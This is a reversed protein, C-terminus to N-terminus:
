RSRDWILNGRNMPEHLCLIPAINVSRLPLYHKWFRIDTMRNPPSTHHWRRDPRMNRGTGSPWKRDPGMSRGPSPTEEQPDEGLPYEETVPRRAYIAKEKNHCFALVLHRGWYQCRTAAVAATQFCEQKYMYCHYHESLVVRYYILM